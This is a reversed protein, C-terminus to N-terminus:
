NTFAGERYLKEINHAERLEKDTCEALSRIGGESSLIFTCDPRTLRNSMLYTNHSTVISQFNKRGNLRTVIRAALEFHYTADFEDIFLFKVKDFYIEWCYYLWLTKTGSSIISEFTTVGDGRKVGLVKGNPVSIEMLSYSLGNERLFEEFDKVKGNDIVISDLSSGSNRLGIFGTVDVGRFWLMSNVFDLMKSLAGNKTFITNNCIYKLVSIDTDNYKWNLSQAEEIDIVRSSPDAYDYAIIRKGNYIVEEYLLRYLSEKKYRYVIRDNGFKFEYYFEAYRHNGDMNLYNLSIIPEMNRNRDTLHFVIDFLAFGLNSKGSGNKGYIIAKNIVGDQILNRNFQYEKHAEFDLEIEKDFGKYGRVKFKCLMIVGGEIGLIDSARTLTM